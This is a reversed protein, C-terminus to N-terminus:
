MLLNLAAGARRLPEDFTWLSCGTLLTSALLHADVWGIGRGYLRRVELFSLVEEHELLQAEPLAKLMSLIEGRKQLTGCALEGIVFPHCLVQEDFLLTKLRDNGARLHEIWVSTDVLIM